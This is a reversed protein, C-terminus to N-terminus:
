HTVRYLFLTNGDNVSVTFSDESNHSLWNAFYYIRYNMGDSMSDFITSGVVITDLDDIQRLYGNIPLSLVTVNVFNSDFDFSEIIIESQETLSNIVQVIINSGMIPARSLIYTPSTPPGITRSTTWTM